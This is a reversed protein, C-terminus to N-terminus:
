FSDVIEFADDVNIDKLNSKISGSAYFGFAAGSDSSTDILKGRINGINSSGAKLDEGGSLSFGYLSDIAFSPMAGATVYSNSFQGGFSIKGISGESISDDQYTNLETLSYAVGIDYGGMLFSDSIDHRVAISGISDAASIKANDINGAKVSKINDARLYGTFVGERDTMIRSIDDSAMINAIIDGGAKISKISGEASVRANDVISEDGAIIFNGSIDEGATIQGISNLARIDGLIDGKVNVSNINNHSILDAGLDGYKIKLSKIDNVILSGSDFTSAQFTKVDANIDFVTNEAITNVKVSIDKDAQSVIVSSEAIIDNFQIQGVSGTLSITGGFDSNAAKISNLSGAEISYIEVEGSVSISSGKASGPLSIKSINGSDSSSDLYVLPAADGKISDTVYKVTLRVRDGNANNFIYKYTNGSSSSPYLINGASDGSVIFDVVSEDLDSTFLSVTVNEPSEISDPEYIFELDVSGGAPIVVSSNVISFQNDTSEFGTINLDYTGTNSVTIFKSSNQGILTQDFVIKDDNVDFGDTEFEPEIVDCEVDYDIANSGNITVTGTHIGADLYEGEGLSADFLVKFTLSQGPQLIMNGFDLEHVSNDNEDLLSFGSNTINISTVSVPSQGHVNFSFTEIRQAITGPLSDVAVDGLDVISVPTDSGERTVTVATQRISGGIDIRQLDFVDEFKGEITQEYDLGKSGDKPRAYSIINIEDFYNKAEGNEGAQDAVFVVYFSLDEGPEVVISGNEDIVPDTIFEIVFSKTDSEYRSDVDMTFDYTYSIVGNENIVNENQQFDFSGFIIDKIYLTDLDDTIRNNDSDLNYNRIVVKEKVDSAKVVGHTGFSISNDNPTASNEEVFALPYVGRSYLDINYEFDDGPDTSRVTMLGDSIGISVPEFRLYVNADGGASIPIARTVAEFNEDLITYPSAPDNMDFQNVTLPKDGFNVLKLEVDNYDGPRTETVVVGSQDITEGDPNLSFWDTNVEEFIKLTMDSDVDLNLVLNLTAEGDGPKKVAITLIESYDTDEVGALYAQLAQTDLTVFLEQFENGAVVTDLDVAESKNLSVSFFNNATSLGYGTIELDSNSYKNFLNVSKVNDMVSNTEDDVVDSSVKELVVLDGGTVQGNLAVKYNINAADNDPDDPDQISVTIVDSLLSQQTGDNQQGFSQPDFYIYIRQYQGKAIEVVGDMNEPDIIETASLSAYFHQGYALQVSDIVVKSDSRNFINVYEPIINEIGSSFFDLSNGIGDAAAIENVSFVDDSNTDINVESVKVVTQYPYIYVFTSDLDDVSSAVGDQTLETFLYYEGKIDPDIWISSLIEMEEEVAFDPLNVQTAREAEGPISIELAFDDDNGFVDDTSLYFKLVSDGKTLGEGENYITSSIITNAGSQIQNPYTAEIANEVISLDGPEGAGILSVTYNSDNDRNFTVSGNEVEGTKVPNFVFPVSLIDGKESLDFASGSSTYNFSAQVSNDEDEGMVVTDHTYVFTYTGAELLDIEIDKQFFNDAFDAKEQASIDIGNMIEYNYYSFFDIYLQTYDYDYQYVRLGTENYVELSTSFLNPTNMLGFTQDYLTNDIIYNVLGDTYEGIVDLDIQGNLEVPGDITVSYVNTEETHAFISTEAATVIESEPIYVDVSDAYVDLDGEAGELEIYYTGAGFTNFVFPQYLRGNVVTDPSLGWAMNLSLSDGTAILDGYSNYVNAESIEGLVGFSITKPEITEFTLWSTTESNVVYYNDYPRIEKDRVSSYGAPFAEPRDYGFYFGDGNVLFDDSISSDSGSVNVLNVYHIDSNSGIPVEGFHINGDNLPDDSDIVLFSDHLALIEGTSVELDAGVDTLVNNDPDMVAFIYYAGERYEGESDLPLTVDFSMTSTGTPVSDLFYTTIFEDQGDLIDDSSIYFSLDLMSGDIQSGSTNVVSFDIQVPDPSYVVQSPLLFENGNQSEMESIQLTNTIEVNNIAVDDGDVLTSRGILSVTQIQNFSNEPTDGVLDGDTDILEDNVVGDDNIDVETKFKIVENINAPGSVPNFSVFVQGTVNVPLTVIVEGDDINSTDVYNPLDNNAIGLINFSDETINFNEIDKFLIKVDQQYPANNQFRISDQETTYGVSYSGFNLSKDSDAGITDTITLHESPITSPDIDAVQDLEALVFLGSNNSLLCRSELAELHLM